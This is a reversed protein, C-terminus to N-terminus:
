NAPPRVANMYIADLFRGNVDQLTDLLVFIYTYGNEYTMNGPLSVWANWTLGSQVLEIDSTGIQFDQYEDSDQMGPVALTGEYVRLILSDKLSMLDPKRDFRIRIPDPTSSLGLLSTLMSNASGLAVDLLENGDPLIYDGNANRLGTYAINTIPIWNRAVGSGNDALVSFSDDGCSQQSQSLSGTKFSISETRTFAQGSFRTYFTELVFDTNELLTYIPKLELVCRDGEMSILRPSALDIRDNRRDDGERYLFIGDRLSDFNITDCTAGSPVDIQIKPRLCVGQQGTNPSIIRIDNLEVSYGLGPNIITNDGDGGCATLFSALATLGILGRIMTLNKMKSGKRLTKM